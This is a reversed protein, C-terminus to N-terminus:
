GCEVAEERSLEFVDVNEGIRSDVTVVTRKSILFAGTEQYHPPLLQSNLRKDYSPVMKGGIREWSLKPHNLVSIVTDLQQEMTFRIAQDLTETKLLPSTPQLTVVYECDIEKVADYIVADLAVDDECLEPSRLICEVGLQGAIIEVEKSDTTVIVRTIYQSHCANQIAYYVMPHNNLLRINKNPIRKSNARAPIVAVIEM